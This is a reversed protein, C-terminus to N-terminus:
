NRHKEYCELAKELVEVLKLREEYAIRKLQELFEKRVRTGLQYTRGTKTLSRRDVNLATLNESAERPPAEWKKSKRGKPKEVCNECYTYYGEAQDLDPAYSYATEQQFEEGCKDCTFNQYSYLNLSQNM